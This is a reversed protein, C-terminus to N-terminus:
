DDFFSIASEQMTFKFRIVSISQFVSSDSKITTTRGQGVVEKAKLFFPSLLRVTIDFIKRVVFLVFTM